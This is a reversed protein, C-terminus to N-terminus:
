KKYKYVEYVEIVGIFCFLLLPIFLCTVFFMFDEGSMKNRYILQPQTFLVGIMLLFFLESFHKDKTFKEDAVNEEENANSKTPHSSESYTLDAPL